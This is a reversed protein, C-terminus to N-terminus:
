ELLSMWLNRLNCLHPLALLLTTLASNMAVLSIAGKARQEKSKKDTYDAYDTSLEESNWNDGEVM